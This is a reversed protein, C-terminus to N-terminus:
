NAIKQEKKQQWREKMHLGAHEKFTMLQLNEIRNDNKIHNKHHVVEDDKLRRGIHKEMVLIHEMMYGDKTARPNDPCYVSIYGDARQKKHGGFESKKLFHGKKAIRMKEKTEESLPIGKRPSPKGKRTDSMKKRQADTLHRRGKIGNRKLSNFVFGVSVGNESAIEHMAKGKEVYETILFEKSIQKM